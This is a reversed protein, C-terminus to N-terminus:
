NEDIGPLEQTRAFAAAEGRSAVGLRAIIASVHHETTKRSISLRRAIQGNSLGKVLLAFVESQRATLGVPSDRTKAIPGRPVARAGNARLQRRVRAAAPGAGLRDFLRLAERQAAEDGGSLAIAQEYPCGLEGWM